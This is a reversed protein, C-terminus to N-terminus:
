VFPIIPHEFSTFHFCFIENITFNAMISSFMDHVGNQFVLSSSSIVLLLYLSQKKLEKTVVFIMPHAVMAKSGILFLFLELSLKVHM